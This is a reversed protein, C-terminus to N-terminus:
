KEEGTIETSKSQRQTVSTAWIYKCSTEFTSTSIALHKLMLITLYQNNNIHTTSIYLSIQIHIYIYINYEFLFQLYKFFKVNISHPTRMHPRVRTFKMLVKTELSIKYTVNFINVFISSAFLLCQLRFPIINLEFTM